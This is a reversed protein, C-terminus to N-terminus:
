PKRPGGGPSGSGGSGGSGNSGGSGPEEPPTGNHNQNGSPEGPGTHPGGPEQGNKNEDGTPMCDTCNSNGGLGAGSGDTNTVGDRISECCDCDPNGGAQGPGASSGGSEQGYQNKDGLPVCDACEPNGGPKGPGAGKEEAEQGYQNANGAPMTEDGLLSEQRGNQYRLRFGNGDQLGAQVRLQARELLQITQCLCENGPEQVQTRARNLERLQTQITEQAQTLVGNMGQEGLHAALQLATNLHHELRLMQADGPEEGQSVMRLMEQVREQAQILNREAKAEPNGILNLQVQEMAIKAPYLASNPLSNDALAITGGASAFVMVLAVAARMLFATMPNKEKSIPPTLWSVTSSTWKKLRVWLPLSVGAEQKTRAQVLFANRDSMLEAQTPMEVPELKQFSQATSLLPLLEQSEDPFRALVAEVSEGARVMELATDLIEYIEKKM